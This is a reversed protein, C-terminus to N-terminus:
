AAVEESRKFIFTTGDGDGPLCSGLAAFAEDCFTHDLVQVGDYGVCGDCVLQDTAVKEVACGNIIAKM